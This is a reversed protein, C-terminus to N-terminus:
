PWLEYANILLSKWTKQCYLSVSTGRSSPWGYIAASTNTIFRKGHKSGLPMPKLWDNPLRGAGNINLIWETQTSVFMCSEDRRCTRHILMKILGSDFQSFSKRVTIINRAPAETNATNPLRSICLFWTAWYIYRQQYHLTRISQPFYLPCLYKIEPVM